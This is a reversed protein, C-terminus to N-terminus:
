AAKVNEELNHHTAHGASHAASADKLNTAAQTKFAGFGQGSGHGRHRRDPQWEDTLFNALHNPSRTWVSHEALRQFRVYPRNGKGDREHWPWGVGESPICAISFVETLWRRARNAGFSLPCFPELAARHSTPYITSGGWLGDEMVTRL